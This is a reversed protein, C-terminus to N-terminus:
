FLSTKELGSIHRRGAGIIRMHSHTQTHRRDHGAERLRRRYPSAARLPRLFAPLDSSSFLPDEIAKGDAQRVVKGEPDHFRQLPKVLASAKVKLPMILSPTNVKVTRRVERTLVSAASSQFSRAPYEFPRDQLEVMPLLNCRLFVM